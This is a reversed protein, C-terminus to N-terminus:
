RILRLRRARDPPIRCVDRSAGLTAILMEDASVRQENAANSAEAALRARRELDALDRQITLDRRAADLDAQLNAARWKALEVGRGRMDGAGYALGLVVLGAVVRGFPSAVFGRALRWGQLGLALAAGGGPIFGVVSALAGGAALIAAMALGIM